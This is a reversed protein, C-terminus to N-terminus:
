NPIACGGVHEYGPPAMNEEYWPVCEQGEDKGACTNPQGLDCFESCCGSGQCGPVATAEACFLGYNCSNAYLCETGYSGDESADLVCSFLEGSPAPICLNDPNPCDSTPATPDCTPLCMALVGSGYQACFAGNPCEPDNPSGTCFAVCYGIHTDGDIDWCMSGKACDDLGDLGPDEGLPMCPEFLQQNGMIPVCINIDWVPGGMWAAATCKEGEPCSFPDWPDCMDLGPMDTTPVFQTDEGDDGSDDEGDGSTEPDPGTDEGSTTTTTTSEGGECDSDCEPEFSVARVSGCSALVLSVLVIVRRM